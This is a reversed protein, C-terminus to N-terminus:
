GLAADAEHALRFARATRRWHRIETARRPLRRRDSRSQPPARAMARAPWRSSETTRFLSIRRSRKLKGIGVFIGVFQVSPALKKGTNEVLSSFKGLFISDFWHNLNNNRNANEAQHGQGTAM